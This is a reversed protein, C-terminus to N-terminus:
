NDPGRLVINLAYGAINSELTLLVFYHFEKWIVPYFIMEMSVQDDTSLSALISITLLGHSTPCNNGPDM